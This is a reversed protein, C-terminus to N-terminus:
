SGSAESDAIARVLGVIRGRLRPDEIKLFARNLQIGQNSAAQRSVDAVEDGTDMPASEDFFFGVPIRLAESIRQLRSAGIRNTGKEYKQVQQFTVGLEKALDSQSMGLVLRQLRVRSGVVIDVPNANNRAQKSM